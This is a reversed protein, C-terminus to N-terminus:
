FHPQSNIKNIGCVGENGDAERGLRIYGKDGWGAGWSNRVLYHDAFCGVVTVAHNL